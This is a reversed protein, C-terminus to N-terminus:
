LYRINILEIKLLLKVMQKENQIRLLIILTNIKCYIKKDTYM